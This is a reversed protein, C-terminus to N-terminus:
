KRTQMKKRYFSFGVYTGDIVECVVEGNQYLRLEGNLLQSSLDGELELNSSKKRSKLVFGSKILKCEYKAAAESFLRFSLEVLVRKEGAFRMGVNCDDFSYYDVGGRHMQSELKLNQEINKQLSCPMRIGITQLIYQPNLFEEQRSRTISDNQAVLSLSFGLSLLLIAIKM